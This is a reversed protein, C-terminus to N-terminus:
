DFERALALAATDAAQPGTELRHEYVRRGFKYFL